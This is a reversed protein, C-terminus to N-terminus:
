NFNVDQNLFLTSNDFFFISNNNFQVDTYFEVVVNDFDKIDNSFYSINNNIPTMNFEKYNDSWLITIYPMIINESCNIIKYTFNATFNENKTNYIKPIMVNNQQFCSTVDICKNNVKVQYDPCDKYCQGSENDLKLDTRCSICNNKTLGNCNFCNKFCNDCSFTNNNIIYGDPCTPYCTNNLLFYNPPCSSCVKYSTCNSCNTSCALCNGINRGDNNITSLSYYNKPCNFWCTNNLLNYGNGCQQCDYKGTCLYCNNKCSNCTGNFAYQGIPCYIECSATTINPYSWNIITNNTINMLINYSNTNLNLIKTVLNYNIICTLCLTNNSCKSCTSPCSKCLSLSSNKYSGDPCNIYCNQTNEMYIYGNSCSTCNTANTSCTNCSIDCSSCNLSTTNFFTSNSCGPFCTGKYSITNPNCNVLCKNPNTTIDLYSTNPCITCNRNNDYVYRPPCEPLCLNNLIYLNSACSIVCGSFKDFYPANKSCMDVCQFNNYPDLNFFFPFCNPYSYCFYNNVYKNPPSCMSTCGNIQDFYPRITPCNSYCTNTSTDIFPAIKPCKDYCKAEVASKLKGNCSCKSNIISQFTDTCPTCINNSEWMKQDLGCISNNICQYNYNKYNITNNSLYCKQQSICTTGLNAYGPPLPPAAPNPPFPPDAPNPPNATCSNYCYGNLSYFPCVPVCYNNNNFYGSLCLKSCSGISFMLPPQNRTCDPICIFNSNSLDQFYYNDINCYNTFCKKLSQSKFENNSCSLDSIEGDASSKNYTICSVYYKKYKYLCYGNMTNSNECSLYDKSNVNRLIINKNDCTTIYINNSILPFNEFNNISNSCKIESGDKIVFYGYTCGICVKPNINSELTGNPCKNSNYCISGTIQSNNGDLIRIEFNGQNCITSQTCSYSEDIKYNIGCTKIKSDLCFTFGYILSNLDCFNVCTKLSTITPTPCSILCVFNIKNQNAECDSICDYTDTNLLNNSNCSQVCKEINTILPKPCDTFYYIGVNKFNNISPPATKCVGDLIYPCNNCIAFNNPIPYLAYLGTNTLSYGFSILYYNNKNSVIYSIDLLNFYFPIPFFNCKILSTTNDIQDIIYSYLNNNDSILITNFPGLYKFKSVTYISDPIQISKKVDCLNYSNFGNILIKIISLTWNDPSYGSLAFITDTSEYYDTFYQFNSFDYINDSTIQCYVSTLNPYTIFNLLLGNNYSLTGSQASSGQTFLGNAKNPITANHNITLSLGNSLIPFMIYTDSISVM